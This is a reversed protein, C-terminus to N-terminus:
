ELYRPNSVALRLRALRKLVAVIARVEAADETGEAGSTDRLELIREELAAESDVGLGALASAFWAADRERAATERRVVRVANMAVRGTFRNPEGEGKVIDRELYSALAGLLADASPSAHVEVAGGASVASEEPGPTPPVDPYLLELADYEQEATRRGIALLELESAHGPVSRRMQRLCGIAWWLTARTEWWTLQESTPRAGGAKEYADLFPEVEGVGAVRGQGGFRWARMCVYGLDEHPDGTHALEWDLVAALGDEDVMLNGMRFDGHVLARPARDEASEGSGTAVAAATRARALERLCLRIAARPVGLDLYDRELGGVPDDLHPLSVGLEGLAATDVSHIGALARGLDAPLAGRSRSLHDNRFIRRPITEGDVWELVIYPLGDGTEASDHALVAPCPVGAAHAARLVQAERENAARDADTPHPLCVVVHAFAPTDADVRFMQRNAGGDLVHVGTVVDGAPLLDQVISRATDEATM